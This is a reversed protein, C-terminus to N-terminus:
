PNPRLQQKAGRHHVGSPSQGFLRGIRELPIVRGNAMIPTYQLAFNHLLTIGSSMAEYTTRNAFSSTLDSAGPPRLIGDELLFLEDNAVYCHTVIARNDEHFIGSISLLQTGVRNKVHRCYAFRDDVSDVLEMKITSNTHTATEWYTAAASRFDTPITHRYRTELAAITVGEEDIEHANFSFVMQIQGRYPQWLPMICEIDLADQSRPM